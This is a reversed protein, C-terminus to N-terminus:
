HRGRSRSRSRRRDGRSRSRSRRRDDRDDRRGGHGGGRDDRGGYGGGGGGYGGRSAGGGGYGGGGGGYGGGGGGYNGGGGGGGYGGGGGGGGRADRTRDRYQSEQIKDEVIRKALKRGEYSAGFILLHEFQGAGTARGKEGDAFCFTGSQREIERLSEGKHGTLFGVAERPVEVVTLDDRDRSPIQVAGRRQELLWTLYDRARKREDKYGACIAVMGVYEMICDAARALKKRTSGGAGLAYSFEDSTLPVTDYSWGDDEGDGVQVLPARLKGESTMFYGPHKHEVASMVKLEAGRRARRTGFIALKETGRGNNHDGSGAVKAFFMLTGWEEEMGRLAAGQRGMVYGVCDEPVTIVSLDDRRTEFDITVPGVRQALVFGV